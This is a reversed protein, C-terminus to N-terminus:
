LLSIMEVINESNDKKCNVYMSQCILKFAIWDYTTRLLITVGEVIEGLSERIVFINCFMPRKKLASLM